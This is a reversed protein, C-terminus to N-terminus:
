GGISDNGTPGSALPDIRAIEYHLYMFEIGGLYFRHDTFVRGEEVYVDIEEDFSNLRVVTLENTEPDAVSLYHGQFSGERSSLLFGDGRNNRPLLTATFSGSPLPFGVSVYGTVGARVVTYIGVYIPERSKEYARVWARFDPVGDADIDITDIWSVVGEHVEEADFPANAQGLPAALVRRYIAYPIRMWRRWHPTITLKFRSTHEYFEKILPHVLMPDFGPGALQGLSDIIGIDSPSRAFEAGVLEAYRKLYDVGVYAHQEALPVVFPLETVDVGEAVFTVQERSRYLIASVVRYVLVTSAWIVSWGVTPGIFFVFGVGLGTGLGLLAKGPRLGMVGVALGAIGGVVWLPWAPLFLEGVWGLMAALFTSALVRVWVPQTRGPVRKADAWGSVSAMVVGGIVAALGVDVQKLGSGIAAGGAVGIVLGTISAGAVQGITRNM